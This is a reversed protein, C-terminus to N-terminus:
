MCHKLEPPAIRVETPPLEDADPDEGDDESSSSGPSPSSAYLLYVCPYPFSATDRSIAHVCIRPYELSLREKEDFSSWSVDSCRYLDGHLVSLPYRQRGRQSESPEQAWSATEKSYEVIM